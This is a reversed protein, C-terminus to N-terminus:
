QPGVLDKVALLDRELVVDRGEKKANELAAAFVKIMHAEAVRQLEDLASQQMRCEPMLERAIDRVVSQFNLRGISMPEGDAVTEEEEKSM